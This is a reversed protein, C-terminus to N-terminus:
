RMKRKIWSLSFQRRKMGRNKEAQQEQEGQNNNYNPGVDDPDDPDVPHEVQIHKQVEVQTLFVKQCINCRIKRKTVKTKPGRKRKEGQTAESQSPEAQTTTTASASSQAKDPGKLKLRFQTTLSWLIAKTCRETIGRSTIKM